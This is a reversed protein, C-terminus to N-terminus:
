IYCCAQWATAFKVTRQHQQSPLLIADSRDFNQKLVEREDKSYTYEPFNVEEAFFISCVMLM